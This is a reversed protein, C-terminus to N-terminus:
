IEYDPRQTKVYEDYLSEDIPFLLFSKGKLHLKLNVLRLKRELPTYLKSVSVLEIKKIHITKKFFVGKTFQLASPSAM